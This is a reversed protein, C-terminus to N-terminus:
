AEYVSTALRKFGHDIAIIDLYISTWETLFFDDSTEACTKLYGGCSECHDIRLGEEGEITLIGLKRDENTECFPCGTRRYLWRTGCRGCCLFRQRVLDRGALQALAPASGCTPCYSRLWKEEERWKAFADIVPHIYRAVANWGIYRLLGPCRSPFGVDHLLWTLIRRHTDGDCGLEANLAKSEDALKGPLPMSALREVAERVMRGVPGLDLALSTSLVLPIGLRFDEVYNEWMPVCTCVCGIEAAANNVQAHLHALPKLYPHRALWVDQTM